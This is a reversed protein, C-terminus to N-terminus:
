EFWGLAAVGGSTEAKILTNGTTYVASTVASLNGLSAICTPNTSNELMVAAVPFSVNVTATTIKKEGGIKSDHFGLGAATAPTIKVCLVGNIFLDIGDGATTCLLHIQATSKAGGASAFKYDCSTFDISVTAAAGVKCSPSGFSDEYRLNTFTLETATSTASTAEGTLQNCTFSVSVEKGETNKGKMVWVHHATTTGTAEDPALTATCPAVSCHFKEEAAHATASLAGFVALAMAAAFLVKLNRIM